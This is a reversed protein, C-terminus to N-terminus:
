KMLDPFWESYYRIGGNEDPERHFIEVVDIFNTKVEGDDITNTYFVPGAALRSTMESLVNDSVMRRVAAEAGAADRERKRDEVVGHILASTFGAPWYPKGM